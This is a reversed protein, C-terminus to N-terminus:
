PQVIKLSANLQGHDARLLARGAASLRIKVLTTGNPAIFFSARGLLIAITSRIKGRKRVTMRHVILMAEGACPSEGTCRLRLLATHDSHTVAFTRSVLSVVSPTLLAPALSDLSDRAGGSQESTGASTTQTTGATQGGTEMSVGGESMPPQVTKIEVPPSTSGAFNEDGGYIATISHTGIVTYSLRCTASSIRGDQSLVQSGCSGIEQGHDLFKMSGSPVKSGLYKPTVTATYVVNADIDASLASVATTTSARGVLFGFGQSGLLDTGASPEFVAGGQTGPDNPGDGKHYEEAFLSSTECTAEYTSGIQMLPQETCTSIPTGSFFEVVGAPAGSSAIVTATLTAPENTVPESPNAAVLVESLPSPSGGVVTATVTQTPGTESYALQMEPVNSWVCDNDGEVSLSIVGSSPVNAFKGTLGGTTSIFTYVQGTPLSRSECGEGESLVIHIAAGELDIPESSIVSNYNIGPIAGVGNIAFNYRTEIASATPVSAISLVGTAAFLRIARRLREAGLRYKEERSGRLM